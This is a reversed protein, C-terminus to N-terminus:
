SRIRVEWMAELHMKRVGNIFSPEFIVGRDDCHVDKWEISGWELVDLARRFFEIAAVKDGLAGQYFGCM